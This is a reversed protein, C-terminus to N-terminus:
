EWEACDLRMLNGDAFGILVGAREPGTVMSLKRLEAIRVSPDHRTVHGTEDILALGLSPEDLENRWAVALKRGVAAVAFDGPVDGDFAVSAPGLVIDPNFGIRMWHFLKAGAAEAQWVIWIGEPHSATELASVTGGIEFNWISQSCCIDTIQGIEIRTTAGPTSGTYYCGGNTNHSGNSTAWLFGQGFPEVGSMPVPDGCASPFRTYGTQDRSWVSMGQQWEGQSALLHGIASVSLTLPPAADTVVRYSGAFTEPDLDWSFGVEAPQTQVVLAIRHDVSAGVAFTGSVSAPVKMISM